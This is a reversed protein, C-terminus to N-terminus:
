WPVRRDMGAVVRELVNLTAPLKIFTPTTDAYELADVTRKLNYAVASSVWPLGNCVSHLCLQALANQVSKASGGNYDVHHCLYGALSDYSPPWARLRNTHCWRKYRLNTAATRRAGPCRVARATRQEVRQAAKRQRVWPESEDKSVVGVLSLLCTLFIILWSTKKWMALLEYGRADCISFISELEAYGELSRCNGKNVSLAASTSDTVWLLVMLHRPLGASQLCVRLARLEM